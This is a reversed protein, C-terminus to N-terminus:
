EVLSKLQAARNELKEVEIWLWERDSDEPKEEGKLIAKRRAAEYQEELDHPFIYEELMPELAEYFAAVDRVPSVKGRKDLAAEWGADIAPLLDAGVEFGPPSPISELREGYRSIRVSAIMVAFSDAFASKMGDGYKVRRTYAQASENETKVPTMQMLNATYVGVLMRVVDNQKNSYTVQM